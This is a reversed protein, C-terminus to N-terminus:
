HYHLSEQGAPLHGAQHVAHIREATEDVLRAFEQKRGALDALYIDLYHGIGPDRLVPGLAARLRTTFWQQDQGGALGDIRSPVFYVLKTAPAVSFLYTKPKIGLLDAMFTPRTGKGPRLRLFSHSTTLDYLYGVMGRALHDTGTADAYTARINRWQPAM